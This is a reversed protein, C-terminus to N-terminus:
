SANKKPEQPQSQQSNSKSAQILREVNTRAVDSGLVDGLRLLTLGQYYGSQMALKLHSSMINWSDPNQLTGALANEGKIRIGQRHAERGVWEALTYPMAKANMNSDQGDPMELATFHLMLRDGGPLSSLQKIGSILPRYGHGKEDSAWDQSDSTRIMGASLEALRDSMLVHDGANTGIRWHIGPMKMGIDSNKYASNPGFVDFATGMVGQIHNILTGNYWDFYDRGYQTDTHVKNNFFADADVPPEINEVHGGWAKNVGDFDGYKKMVWDKFDAKALDSYSQLAGRSPYGVNNDHHNYSPYRAEGAPGLSINIESINEAKGAYHNAFQTMVDRYLPMAYKDAWFQVYENSVHGQESKFKGADPDNGPIQSSVKNWVWFPIPVDVNDGVNGGAKCDHFSLIPVWNLAKQSLDRQQESRMEPFVDKIVQLAADGKQTIVNSLKDYYNLQLQGPKPQIIGWWVDTSIGDIGIKKAQALQKAFDLWAGKSAEGDPDHPDGILLPAMANIKTEPSGLMIRNGGTANKWQPAQNGVALRIHNEAGRELYVPGNGKPFLHSAREVEGLKEPNCSAILDALKPIPINGNQDSHQLLLQREPGVREWGLINRVEKVTTIATRTEENSFKDLEGFGGTVIFERSKPYPSLGVTELTGLASDKVRAQFVPDSIKIGVGAGAASVGGELLGKWLVAGPSIRGKEQMERTAEGVSGNVFGFSGGMVMGSIMKNEAIAGKYALNLGSYLGEGATFLAANMLVAQPNFANKRLRDNLSSPDAFTERKFIEDAAGSGLGMLAGKLPAYAGSSGVLSFMGKMSEGKSAGLAFDEAQTQWSSDPKAQDLGYAIATAAIGLKGGTFLSATKVFDATYHNVTSRTEENSIFKSSVFDIGSNLYSKSQPEAHSKEAAQPLRQSAFSALLHDNSSERHLLELARDAVDKESQKDNGTALSQLRDSFEYPM